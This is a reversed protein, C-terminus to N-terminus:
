VPIDRIRKLRFTVAEFSNKIVNENHTLPKLLTAMFKGAGYHPTDMTDIKPLGHASGIKVIERNEFKM